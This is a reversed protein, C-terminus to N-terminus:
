RRRRMLVLLGAAGLFMSSPEPVAVIDVSRGFGVTMEDFNEGPVDNTVASRNRMKAEEILGNTNRVIMFPADGPTLDTFTFDYAYGSVISPAVTASLDNTYQIDLNAIPIVAGNEDRFEFSLKAGDVGGYLDPNIGGFAFYSSTVTASAVDSGYLSQYFSLNTFTVDSFSGAYLTTGESKNIRYLSNLTGGISTQPYTGANTDSQQSFTGTAGGEFMLTGTYNRNQPFNPGGILFNDHVAGEEVTTITQCWVPHALALIALSTLLSTKM